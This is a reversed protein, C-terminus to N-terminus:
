MKQGDLDAYNTSLKLKNSTNQKNLFHRYRKDFLRCLVGNQFSYRNKSAPIRTSGYLWNIIMKEHSQVRLFLVCLFILISNHYKIVKNDVFCAKFAPNRLRMM